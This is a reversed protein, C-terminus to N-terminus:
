DRAPFNEADRVDAGKVGSLAGVKSQILQTDEPTPAALFMVWTVYVWKESDPYIPMGLNAYDKLWGPTEDKKKPTPGEMGKPISVIETGLGILVNLMVASYEMQWAQVRSIYDPDDTNEMERGMEKSFYTPPNPRQHKTMARILLNPNAPKARLVVGSSLRILNDEGATEDMAKAVAMDAAHLNVKNLDNM